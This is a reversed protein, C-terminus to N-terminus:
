EAPAMLRAVRPVALVSRACAYGVGGGAIVDSLFHEGMLVRSAGVGCALSLFWWRARPFAAGLVVAVAFALATHGSPFTLGSHSWPFPPRFLASGRNYTKGHVFTMEGGRAVLREIDKSSLEADPRLKAIGHKLLGQGVAVALAVALLLAVVQGRRAPAILLMTTVIVILFWAEGMRKFLTLVEVVKPARGGEPRGFRWVKEGTEQAVCGGVELYVWQDALFALALLLGWAGWGGWKRLM